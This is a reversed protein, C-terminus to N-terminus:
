GPDLPLRHMDRAMRQRRTEPEIIGDGKLASIQRSVTELTPGLDDAMAEQTLMLNCTVTRAARHPGLAATRRAMIALLWATKRRPAVMWERAADLAVLRMELLRQSLHPTAKLTSEFAKTRFCCLTPDPTATVTFPVLARRPRGVFDFSMLRGVMHTRGDDLARSITAIGTVVSAAFEM